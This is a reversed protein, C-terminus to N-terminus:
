QWEAHVRNKVIHNPDIYRKSEVNQKLKKLDDFDYFMQRLECSDSVVKFM